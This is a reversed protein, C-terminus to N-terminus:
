PSIGSEESCCGTSRRLWRPTPDSDDGCRPVDVRRVELWFRRRDLRLIDRGHLSASVLHGRREADRALAEGAHVAPGPSLGWLRSHTRSPMPWRRPCRSPAVRGVGKAGLPNLPSPTELFEGHIPPVESAGPIGYLTLNGTLPQGDDDHVM